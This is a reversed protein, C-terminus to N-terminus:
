DNTNKGKDTYMGIEGKGIDKLLLKNETGPVYYIILDEIVAFPKLNIYLTDNKIQVRQDEFCLFDGFHFGEM